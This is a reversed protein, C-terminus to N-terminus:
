RASLRSSSLCPHGDVPSVGLDCSWFLLPRPSATRSTSLPSRRPTHNASRPLVVSSNQRSASRRDLFTAFGPGTAPRLLGALRTRLFGDLRHSVALVSCPPLSAAESGFRSFALFPTDRPLPRVPQHRYLPVLSTTLVVRLLFGWRFDTVAETFGGSPLNSRVFLVDALTNQVFSALGPSPLRGQLPPFTRSPRSCRM